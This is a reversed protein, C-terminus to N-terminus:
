VLISKLASTGEDIAPLTWTAGHGADVIQNQLKSVFSPKGNVTITIRDTKLASQAISLTNFSELVLNYQGSEVGITDIHVNTSDTNESFTVFPLAAESSSQRLNISLANTITLKSYIHKISVTTSQGKDVEISSPVSEGDRVYQTGYVGVSCISIEDGPISETAIYNHDAVMHM